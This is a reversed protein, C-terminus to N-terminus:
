GLLVILHYVIHTVAQYGVKGGEQQLTAQWLQTHSLFFLLFCILFLSYVPLLGLGSIDESYFSLYPPLSLPVPVSLSLSCFRSWIRQDGLLCWQVM